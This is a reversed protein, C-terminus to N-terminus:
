FNFKKQGSSGADNPVQEVPLPQGDQTDIAKNDGEHVVYLALMVVALFAAAILRFKM